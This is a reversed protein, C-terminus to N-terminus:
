GSGRGKGKTKAKAAAKRLKEKERLEKRIGPTLECRPEHRQGCVICMRAVRTDATEKEKKPKEIQEEKADAERSRKKGADKFGKELGQDPHSEVQPDLLRWLAEQPSNAYHLIGKQINGEGQAVCKLIEEFMQRDFRRVENITPGRMKEPQTARLRSLYKDTLLKCAIFNCVKAMHFARARIDLIETLDALDQIKVIHELEDEKTKLEVGSDGYVLQQREKPWLGQRRLRQEHEMNLYVEWPLYAFSGGTGYAQMVKALCRLSPQERESAPRQMGERVARDEMEKALAFTVRKKGDDEPATILELEKKAQHQSLHWLKRVCGTDESSKFTSWSEPSPRSYTAVSGDPKRYGARLRLTTKLYEEFDGATPFRYALGEFTSIGDEVLVLYDSEHVDFDVAARGFALESKAEAM